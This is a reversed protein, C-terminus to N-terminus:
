PKPPKPDGILCTVSDNGDTTYAWDCDKVNVEHNRVEVKPDTICGIFLLGLLSNCLNKM